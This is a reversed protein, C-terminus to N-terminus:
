QLTYMLEGRIFYADAQPAPYFDGPMFYDFLFHGTLQKTVNFRIWLQFENGRDKGTTSGALTQGYFAQLHYLFASINVNKIPSIDFKLYPSLTNTWYAIRKAGQINEYTHSYIYLESWKPWRSFLPNWGENDNTAPDDGSLSNIGGTLAMKKANNFGYTLYAYGGYSNQTASGKSGVQFAWETTLKFHSSLPYIVRGGLTNLGLDELQQATAGLNIWPKPLEIKHIFYGEWQAGEKGKHTLYVGIAKERNDNLWQNGEKDKPLGKTPQDQNASKLTPLRDDYLGNDIALLDVTTPGGAVSMKIADFYITRSGDWPAGDMLIFGEGYMLNQRGVIFTIPAGPTTFRLNLHEIVIEDLTFDKSKDAERTVAYYRFENNLQMRLALNPNFDVQGWLTTRIRFFDQKDDKASSFDQNNNMMTNRLREQFGWKFSPAASLMNISICSVVALTLITLRLNKM